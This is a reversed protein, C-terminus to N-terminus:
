RSISIQCEDSETAPSYQATYEATASEDDIRASATVRFEGTQEESTCDVGDGQFSFPLTNTFITAESDPNLPYQPVEGQGSEVDFIGSVEEENAQELEGTPNPLEGLLLLKEIVAPGQGRNEVSIFAESKGTTGLEDPMREPHNAGVGVETISLEPAITLETEAVTSDGASAVVRYEGPTYSLGIDFEVRTAGQAVSTSSYASGDPAIVNVQDASVSGLEVVLTQGDVQVQDFSGSGGDDGDSGGDSDSPLSCGALPVSASAIGGLLTRRTWQM